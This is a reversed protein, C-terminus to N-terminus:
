PGRWRNNPSNQALTRRMALTALPLPVLTLLVGPIFIAWNKLLSPDVLFLRYQWIFGPAIALILYVFLLPPKLKCIAYAAPLCFVVNCLADILFVTVHLATGKLGSALLWNPLPTYVSIYGWLRVLIYTQALGILIAAIFSASRYKRFYGLRKLWPDQRPYRRSSVDDARPAAMRRFTFNLPRM